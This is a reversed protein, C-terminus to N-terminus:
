APLRPGGIRVDDRRRTIGRSDLESVLPLVYKRSAGTVDRFAAVTFGDPFKELLDAAVEAADDITATHFVLGDRQVIHGRRALERIDNRDVDDAAPPTFGGALLEALFPHDVYPDVADAPLVLGTEVVVEDTTEIAAREREDFVALDIGTVGAEEVRDVVSRVTAELAEPTTVWDGLSPEAVEGTLRELEDARVWGRERVVREISRDPAARSARVVPAIDLVEGGGVTEDRGSERLIYRDGPLLPLAVPAFLRVAGTTGPALSETGLVRLKVAHEGAGFYAVYAGRRSVEHDLSSLVDLSADIRDTLHWRDPEVVADGRTLEDHDVGNLNLAVRNGPGIREVTSGATQISRIRVDRDLPTVHMTHDSVMTGGVLTGTVVTGSGKAAFVRDIWLRPRDRDAAAGSREILADIEVRMEDIGIGETAAVPVVPASELFTGVVHDAVDMKALELLDEDVLDVKTLAILGFEVGLLELIRLHEESQPKWGETAAVVFVCANVGGVGALMNRLFKVHGPVDIFSLEAGSPLVTHAFGLDITLGRRKEEEFRDPDTGTLALVLSSKGHDVHGAT